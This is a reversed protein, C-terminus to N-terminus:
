REIPLSVPTQQSPEEKAPSDDDPRSSDREPSPLTGDRGIDRTLQHVQFQDMPRLTPRSPSNHECVAVVEM